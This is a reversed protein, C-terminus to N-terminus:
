TERFVQMFKLPSDPGATIYIGDVTGNAYELSIKKTNMNKFNESPLTAVFQKSASVM